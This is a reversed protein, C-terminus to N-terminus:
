MQFRRSENQGAQRGSPRIREANTQVLGLQKASPEKGGGGRRIDRILINKGKTRLMEKLLLAKSRDTGKQIYPYESATAFSLTGVIKRRSATWQYRHYRPM